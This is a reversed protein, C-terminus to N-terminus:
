ITFRLTLHWIKPPNAERRRGGVMNGKGGQDNFLELLVKHYYIVYALYLTICLTWKISKHEQEFCCSASLLYRYVKVIYGPAKDSNENPKINKCNLVM